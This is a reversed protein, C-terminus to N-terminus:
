APDKNKDPGAGPRIRQISYINDITARTEDAQLPELPTVSVQNLQLRRYKGAADRYGIGTTDHIVYTIGDVRGLVMMVHGPIYVLDGTQLTQLVALRQERTTKEDFAIREFAESVGQDRTNRPLEIGVSRYVESVFGSCDRADYSHGWGYREGLFKFSQRIVNAPTYPLYDAAVDANRPLLAPVLELSGDAARQPLEIVHAAYPHQGNVPQDAPWDARLPVRVGMDLQLQSVQPNEPTYVTTATAGTVVLYPSKRGYGFVTDRAGLAVRDQEIWAAYRPSVVFWWQGDRSAHLVVVPTGPFLASEQYRDIDHDGANNFVRLTTPLTRLDARKVVLGYRADTQEPLADIATNAVLAEFTAQPIEKGSDDFLTRSPLQAFPSMWERLAERTLTPPLAELDHVTADLREVTDNLQEIAARDLAVNQADRQQRIWFAPDLHQAQVGIVGHEPVQPQKACVAALPSALLALLLLKRM